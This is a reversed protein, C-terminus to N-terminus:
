SQALRGAAEQLADNIMEQNVQQSWWKEINFGELAKGSKGQSRAEILATGELIDVAGEVAELPIKKFGQKELALNLDALADQVKPTIYPGVEARLANVDLAEQEEKTVEAKKSKQPEEFWKEHPSFPSEVTM